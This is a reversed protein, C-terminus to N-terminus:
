SADEDERPRARFLKRALLGLYLAYAVTLAVALATHGRVLAAYIFLPPLAMGAVALGLLVLSVLGFIVYLGPSNAKPDDPRPKV